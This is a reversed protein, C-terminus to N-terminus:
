FAARDDRAAVEHAPPADRGNSSARLRGSHWRRDSATPHLRQTRRYIRRRLVSGSSPREHRRVVCLHPRGYTLAGHIATRGSSSLNRTHLVDAFLRSQTAYKPCPKELPILIDEQSSSPLGSLSALTSLRM